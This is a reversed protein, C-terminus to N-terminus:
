VDHTFVTAVSVGWAGVPASYMSRGKVMYGARIIARTTETTLLNSCFDVNRVWGVLDSVKQPPYPISVTHSEKEFGLM